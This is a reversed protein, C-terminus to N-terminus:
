FILQLLQLLILLLVLGGLVKIATAADVEFGGVTVKPSPPERRREPQGAPPRLPPASASASAPAPTNLVRAISPDSEGTVYSAALRQSLPLLVRTEALEGGGQEDANLRLRVLRQSRKEIAFYVVGGGGAWPMEGIVDYTGEAAHKVQELLAHRAAPSSPNQGGASLDTGCSTCFRAWRRLPARCAHCEGYGVSVHSDLERAVELEYDPKGAPGTGTKGLRLAVLKGDSRTKALYWFDAGERGLEGYVHYYDAAVERVVSLLDEEM